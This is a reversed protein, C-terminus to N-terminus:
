FVSSENSEGVRKRIASMTAQSLLRTAEPIRLIEWVQKWAGRHSHAYQRHLASLKMSFAFLHLNSEVKVVGSPPFKWDQAASVLWHIGLEDSHGSPWM